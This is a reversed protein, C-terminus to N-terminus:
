REIVAGTGFAAMGAIALAISVLVLDSRGIVMAAVLLFSASILFVGGVVSFVKARLRRQQTFELNDEPELSAGEDIPLDYVMAMLEWGQSPVDAYRVNLYVIDSEVDDVADTPVFLLDSEPITSNVILQYPNVGDVIGLTVGDATAVRWGADIVRAEDPNHTAVIM